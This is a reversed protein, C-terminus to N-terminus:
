KDNMSGDCKLELSIPPLALVVANHCHFTTRPRPPPPLQVEFLSVRLQARPPPPMQVALPFIRLMYSSSVPRPRLPLVRRQDLPIDELLPLPHPVPIALPPHFPRRRRRRQCELRFRLSSNKRRHNRRKRRRPAQQLKRRLYNSSFDLVLLLMQRRRRLQLFMLLMARRLPPLLLLHHRYDLRSDRPLFKPM